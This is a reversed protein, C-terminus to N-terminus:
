HFHTEGTNNYASGVTWCSVCDIRVKTEKAMSSMPHGTPIRTHGSINQWVGFDGNKAMVPVGVLGPALGHTSTPLFNGHFRYSTMPVASKHAAAHVSTALGREQLHQYIDTNSHKAKPSLKELDTYKQAEFGRPPHSDVGRVQNENRARPAGVAELGHRKYAAIKDDINKDTGELKEKFTKDLMNFRENFDRSISERDLPSPRSEPGAKEKYGEGLQIYGPYAEKVRSARSAYKEPSEPGTQSVHERRSSRMDSPSINFRKMVGYIDSRSTMLSPHHRYDESQIGIDKSSDRKDPMCKLAKRRDDSPSGVYRSSNTTVGGSKHSQPKHIASYPHATDFRQKYDAPFGHEDILSPALYRPHHIPIGHPMVMHRDYVASMRRQMALPDSHLDINESHKDQFKEHIAHQSYMHVDKPSIVPVPYNPIHPHMKDANKGHFPCNMDPKTHQCLEFPLGRQLGIHGPHRIGPTSHTILRPTFTKPSYGALYPSAVIPVGPPLEAPVRIPKLGQTHNEHFGPHLEAMAHKDARVIPSVPNVSKGTQIRSFEKRDQINGRKNEEGDSSVEIVKDELEAPLSERRLTLRGARTHAHTDEMSSPREVRSGSSGQSIRLYGQDSEIDNSPVEKCGKSSPRKTTNENPSAPIRNPSQPVRNPSEQVKRPPSDPMKNTSEAPKRNSSPPVRDLLIRGNPPRLLRDSTGGDGLSPSHAIRDPARGNPSIQNPSLPMNTHSAVRYPSTMIRSPSIQNAPSTDIGNPSRPSHPTVYNNTSLMRKPSKQVRNPSIQNPAQYAISATAQLAIPSLQLYCPQQIEQGCQTTKLLGPSAKVTPIYQKIEPSCSKDSRPSLQEQKTTVSYKIEPSCDNQVLTESEYKIPSPVHLIERERQSNTIENEKANEDDSIRKTYGEDLVEDKYNQEFLPSVSSQATASHELPNNILIVENSDTTNGKPGELTTEQEITRATNNPIIKQNIWREVLWNHRPLDSRVRNQTADNERRLEHQKKGNDQSSSKCRKSGGNESNDVSEDSCSSRKVRSSHEKLNLSGKEPKVSGKSGEKARREKRVSLYEDYPSKVKQQGRNKDRMKANSPENETEINAELDSSEGLVEIKESSYIEANYSDAITMEHGDREHETVGRANERNVRTYTPQPGRSDAAHGNVQHHERSHSHTCQEDPMGYARENLGSGEATDACDCPDLKTNKSTEEDSGSGSTRVDASKYDSRGNNQTYDLYDARNLAYEQQNNQLQKDDRQCREDIPDDKSAHDRSSNPIDQSQDHAQDRTLLQDHELKLEQGRKMDEKLKKRQKELDQTLRQKERTGEKGKLKSVDDSVADDATVDRSAPVQGRDDWVDRLTKHRGRLEQERTEDPYKYYSNRPREIVGRHNIVHHAERPVHRVHSTEMGNRRQYTDHYFNATFSRVRSQNNAILGVGQNSM